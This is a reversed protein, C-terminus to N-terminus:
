QLPDISPYDGLLAFNTSFVFWFMKHSFHFSAKCAELIIRILDQTFEIEGFLM